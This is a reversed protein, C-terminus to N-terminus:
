KWEELAVGYQAEFHKRKWKFMPTRFGKRDAYITVWRGDREEEFVFDLVIRGIRTESVLLDYPVQRRLNRVRGAREALRLRGWDEAEAKSDFRIGDLVTAEARYKHPKGKMALRYQAATVTDISM